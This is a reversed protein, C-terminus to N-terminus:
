SEYGKEHTCNILELADEPGRGFGNVDVLFGRERGSERELQQLTREIQDSRGPLRRVAELGWCHRCANQFSVLPGRAGFRDLSQVHERM